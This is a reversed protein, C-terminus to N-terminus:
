AVHGAGSLVWSAAMASRGIGRGGLVGVGGGSSSPSSLNWFEGVFDTKSGVENDGMSSFKGTVRYADAGLKEVVVRGRPGAEDSAFETYLGIDASLM